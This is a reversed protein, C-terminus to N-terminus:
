PRMFPHTADDDLNQALFELEAAIDEVSRSQKYIGLARDVLARAVADSAIGQAQARMLLADVAEAM